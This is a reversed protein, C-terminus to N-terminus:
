TAIYNLKALESRHNKLGGNQLMECRCAYNYAYHLTIFRFIPMNVLCSSQAQGHYSAVHLLMSITNFLSDSYNGGAVMNKNAGFHEYPLYNTVILDSDLYM